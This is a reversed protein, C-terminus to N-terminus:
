VYENFLALGEKSTLKGFIGTNLKMRLRIDLEKAQKVVDPIEHWNHEFVIYDWVLKGLRDEKELQNRFAIMNDWSRKWNVGIRYKESTKQSLGDISFTIFLKKGYLEAMETYWAPQRLGGNTHIHIINANDYGYKVFDTIDPHMMPDGHEGCFVFTHDKWDQGQLVNTWNKFDVHVLPLWAAKPYGEKNPDTRPCSPCKAQCYSTICFDISKFKKWV